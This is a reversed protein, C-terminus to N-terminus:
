PQKALVFRWPLNADEGAYDIGIRKTSHIESDKISTGRDEIWVPTESLLHGNYTRDIGLAQCVMGPGGTLDKSCNRRKRMTEIGEMPELARVLIAHPTDEKSTVVNFLHHMGYCFYVYAVGGKHFMVETRETRRNGYAHCARDHPGQYAETEVIMGGTLIGDVRSVLWKGILNKALSVVDDSLYFSRDLIM